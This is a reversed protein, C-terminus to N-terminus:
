KLFHSCALTSFYQCLAINNAKGELIQSQLNSQKRTVVDGELSKLKDELDKTKQQCVKELHGLKGCYHCTKKKKKNGKKILTQDDHKEKNTSDVCEKEQWGKRQLKTLEKGEDFQGM